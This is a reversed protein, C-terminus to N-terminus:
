RVVHTHPGHVSRQLQHLCKAHPLAPAVKANLRWSRTYHTQAIRLVTAFRLRLLQPPRYPSPATRRAPGLLRFNAVRHPYSGLASLPLCCNTITYIQTLQQVQIRSVKGTVMECTYKGASFDCNFSVVPPTPKPTPPSTGSCWTSPASAECSAKTWGLPECKQDGHCCANQYGKPPCSLGATANRCLSPCYGPDTEARTWEANLVLACVLASFGRMVAAPYM